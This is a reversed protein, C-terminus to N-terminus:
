FTLYMLARASQSSGDPLTYSIGQCISVSVAATSNNKITLTTIITSDCGAANPIHSEYIGAVTQISGNPLTHSAGQCISVNASSSTQPIVNLITTIASDCGAANILHSIYTGSTNELVEM